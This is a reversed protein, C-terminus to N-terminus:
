GAHALLRRTDEPLTDLFGTDFILRPMTSKPFNVADRFWPRSYTCYVMPRPQTSRNATGSHVLRFDWMLCSGIPITPNIEGGREDRNRWRHSGPWLTTTGHFENMEILPLAFTLAHAPLLASIEAGYLYPADLHTPQAVAGGLSVVAGFAELVAMQELVERVVAIAYPNAFILPDGFGEAFRLPVLYRAPGIKKSDDSEEDRLFRAYRQHFHLNLARVKEAPVINDLIAYGHKVFCATAARIQESSSAADASVGRCDIRIM